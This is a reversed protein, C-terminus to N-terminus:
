APVGRGAPVSSSVTLRVALLAIDDRLTGGGLRGGARAECM